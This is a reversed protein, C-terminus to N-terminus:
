NGEWFAIRRMGFLFVGPGYVGRKLDYSDDGEVDGVVMM